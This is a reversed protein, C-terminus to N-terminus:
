VLPLGAQMCSGRDTQGILVLTYILLTGSLGPFFLSNLFVHLKQIFNM